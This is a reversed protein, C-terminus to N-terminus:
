PRTITVTNSGAENGTTLRVFLRFSAVDGPNALGASTDFTLTGPPRNGVVVATAEDYSAGPSMRLEYEDLDADDSASWSFQAQATAANWAGTLSVAAPTHGPAASLAPLSLTLPHDPGFTAAVLERYQVMRERALPLLVDRQKRGIEVDNEATTVAAYAARLAALEAVFQARTLGALLLPPTFGPITADADIRAWLSAMDDFPELFKGESLGFTPVRPAADLYISNPLLGRLMGRFQNLRLLIAAKRQDRNTVGTERANELDILGTLAAALSDRLALFMARTFGGQLKLDTAPTGGLETNVDLWHALFEDITPLYSGIGNLPM